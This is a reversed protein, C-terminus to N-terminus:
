MEILVISYSPRERIENIREQESAEELEIQQNNNNETETIKEIDTTRESTENSEVQKSAKGIEIEQKGDKEIKTTKEINKASNQSTEYKIKIKKENELIRENNIEKIRDIFDSQAEVVEQLLDM